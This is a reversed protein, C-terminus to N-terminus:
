AFQSSKLSCSLGLAATSPTPAPHLAFDISPDAADSSHAHVVSPFPSEPMFVGSRKEPGLSARLTVLASPEPFLPLLGVLWFGAEAETRPGDEDAADLAENDGLGGAPELEVDETRGGDDGVRREALPVEVALEEVFRDTGIVPEFDGEDGRRVPPTGSGGGIDVEAIPNM